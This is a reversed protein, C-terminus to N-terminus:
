NEIKLKGNEIKLGRSNEGVRRGSLDYINRLQRLRALGEQAESSRLEQIGTPSLTPHLDEAGAFETSTEGLWGCVQNEACYVRVFDIYELHVPRRDSDVAWDLNFCCVPNKVGDVLNPVNDVYGYRLCNMVWYSGNSSQDFGNKPLLTGTLTLPEDKLWMPFYEQGHYDNRPVVGSQGQNDTWPTDQLSSYTYTIEYNYTVKGISDEDASGSLEYWEDDPLGNGNTDQSVMVIGPESSGAREVQDSLVANGKMYLDYEGSKNVVPHDFGFTVYGGFGGLCIMSADEGALLETCKDAMKHADDGEEWEPLLNVFQGPAPVYDYVKNIYPSNLSQASASTIGVFALAVVQTLLLYYKQFTFHFIFFSFNREM